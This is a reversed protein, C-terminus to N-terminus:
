KLTRNPMTIIINIYRCFDTSKDYWLLGRTTLLTSVIKNYIHAQRKIKLIIGKTIKEDNKQIINKDVCFIYNNKVM